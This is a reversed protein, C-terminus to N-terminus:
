PEELSLDQLSRLPSRKHYWFLPFLLLQFGQGFGRGPDRAHVFDGIATQGFAPRGQNGTTRTAALREKGYFEQDVSSGL